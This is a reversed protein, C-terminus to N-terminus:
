SCSAEHGCYTWSVVGPPTSSNAYLVVVANVLRVGDISTTFQVRRDFSLPSGLTECTVTATKGNMTLSFNPVGMCPVAGFAGVQPTVRGYQIAAETAGDAVYITDRQDRLNVTSRTSADALYLIAAIVVGFFFLFGLALLLAQGSEDRARLTM